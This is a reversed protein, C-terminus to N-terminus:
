KKVIFDEVKDINKYKIEILYDKTIIKMDKLVDKDSTIYYEETDVVYKITESEDFNIIKDKQKDETLKAKIINIDLYEDNFTESIIEYKDIKEFIGNENKLYIENYFYYVEDEGKTFLNKNFFRKGTIKIQEATKLDKIVAEYEYIKKIDTWHKEIKTIPKPEPTSASIIFFFGFFLLYFGFFTGAKIYKNKLLEKIKEM